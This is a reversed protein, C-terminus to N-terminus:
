AKKELAGNVASPRAGNIADFLRSVASKLEVSQSNLEEAAAASEEAGAANSQTVKDLQMLANNVQNIGQNQEGSASAIERVLEDMRRARALITDLSESVKTSVQVGAASKRISDNICDTTEKAALASRQALSRVEDAVVAFGAGVEGARAAEVAANLALINTQFAIEDITKVIKAINDSATKIEAMAQLMRQMDGAGKDAAERTQSSLQLASNAHEANRTTMSSIEEMTASTEELSAAQESAGEALCQSASSIDRAAAEEQLSSANIRDIAQELPKMVSGRMYIFAGGIVLLSVPIMWLLTTTMGSHVVGDVHDLTAKLVFAGHVEGTKWNEMQFGLIDKGDGTRSNAPDGHCFLCDSTLKIPRAFVLRNHERDIKFYEATGEKEFTDLIAAEDATPENDKNRAQRKPVRFEWNNEKAAKDIAQWAAVVPITKYLTSGRLDGARKYEALM